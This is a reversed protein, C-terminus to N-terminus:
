EAPPALYRLATFLGGDRQLIWTSGKKWAPPDLVPV